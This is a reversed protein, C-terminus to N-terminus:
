IDADFLTGQHADLTRRLNALVEEAAERFARDLDEEAIRWDCSLAELDDEFPPRKVFTSPSEGFFDLSFADFFGEGFGSFAAELMSNFWIVRRPVRDFECGVSKARHESIKRSPPILAEVEVRRGGDVIQGAQAIKPSM